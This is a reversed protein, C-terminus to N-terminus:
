TVLINDLDRPIAINGLLINLYVDLQAGDVTLAIM